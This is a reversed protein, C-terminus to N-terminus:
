AKASKGTFDVVQSDIWPLFVLMVLM